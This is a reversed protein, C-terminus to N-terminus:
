VDVKIIRPAIWWHAWYIKWQKNITFDIMNTIQSWKKVNKIVGKM